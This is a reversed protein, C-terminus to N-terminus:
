KNRYYKVNFNIILHAWMRTKKHIEKLTHKSLANKYPLTNKSVIEIAKALFEKNPYYNSLIKFNWTNKPPM